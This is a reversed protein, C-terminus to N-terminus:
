CGTLRRWVSTCWFNAPASSACSPTMVRACTLRIGGSSGPRRTHQRVRPPVLSEVGAPHLNEALVAQTAALADTPSFEVVRTGTFVVPTHGPPAYYADGAEYREERDAYRLILRGSIVYGWHPCQCRDDPLGRFLPAADVDASFEEFGVTYGDALAAFAGQYGDVAMRAPATDRSANRM